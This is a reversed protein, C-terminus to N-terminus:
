KVRSSLGWREKLARGFMGLAYPIDHLLYRKYLRRPEQFLRYFWELGARRVWLSPRKLEGAIYSFTIGVGMWVVPACRERIRSILFEGKPYSLAVFVINPKTENILKVINDEQLSDKEFGFPPYHTGAIRLSPYKDKLVRGARIATDPKGGGLLFISYDRKEAEECVLWTTVSGAVREHLPTGRLRSAWVLPMGDAIVIDPQYMLQALVPDENCQHLMDINPTWVWGGKRCEVASMVLQVFQDETVNDIKYGDLEVTQRM